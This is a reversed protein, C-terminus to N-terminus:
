KFALDEQCHAACQRSVRLLLSLSVLTRRPVVLRLLELLPRSTLTAEMMWWGPYLLSGTAWNSTAMSLSASGTPRVSRTRGMQRKLLLRPPSSDGASSKTTAPQPWVSDALRDCSRLYVKRAGRPLPRHWASYSALRSTRPGSLMRSECSQALPSSLVSEHAPSLPPGSMDWTPEPAVPPKVWQRWFPAKTGRYFQNTKQPKKKLFLHQLEALCLPSKPRFKGGMDATNTRFFEPM